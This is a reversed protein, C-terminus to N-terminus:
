IDPVRAILLWIKKDPDNEWNGLNNASRLIEFGAERLEDRVYSLSLTHSTVQENRTRERAYEKLKELIVIRGGPKLAERVHALVAKYDVIEHYTDVIFVADLDKVPLKPDDETGHVAVINELHRSSANAALRQLRDERIDVAFVTGNREVKRALHISLYGEHCGIDAVKDGPSVGAWELILGTDMWKDRSEWDSEVYQAIGCQFATLILFIPVHKM